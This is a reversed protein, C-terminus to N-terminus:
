ANVQEAALYRIFRELIGRVFSLHKSATVPDVFEDVKGHRHKESLRVLEDHDEKRYGLISNMTNWATKRDVDEDSVQFHSRIDEVARYAYFYVDPSAESMSSVFDELARRLSAHESVLPLIRESEIFSKNDQHQTDPNPEHSINGVVVRQIQPQFEVWQTPYCDLPRESVNFFARGMMLMKVFLHARRRAIEFTVRAKDKYHITLMDQWILLRFEAAFNESFYNESEYRLNTCRNEPALRYIFIYTTATDAM